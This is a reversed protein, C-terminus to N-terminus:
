PTGLRADMRAAVGDLQALAAETGTPDADAMAAQLGPLVWAGYGSDRDSSAFVNRFWPRGPLGAPDIWCQQLNQAWARDIPM